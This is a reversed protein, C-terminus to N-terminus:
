GVNGSQDSGAKGQDSIWKELSARPVRICRGVRVSPIKGESILQYVLSRGVGLVERVESPKLLVREM